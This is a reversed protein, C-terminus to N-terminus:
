RGMVELTVLLVDNRANFTFEIGIHGVRIKEDATVRIKVFVTDYETMTNTFSRSAAICNEFVVDGTKKERQFMIPQITERMGIEPANGFIMANGCNNAEVGVIRRYIELIRIDIIIGNVKKIVDTNM